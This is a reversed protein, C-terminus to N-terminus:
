IALSSLLIRSVVSIHLVQRHCSPTSRSLFRPYLEAYKPDFKGLHRLYLEPKM